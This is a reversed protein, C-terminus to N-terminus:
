QKKRFVVVGDTPQFKQNIKQPPKKTKNKKKNIKEKQFKIKNLFFTIKKLKLIKKQSSMKKTREVRAVGGRGLWNNTEKKSKKKSFYFKSKM